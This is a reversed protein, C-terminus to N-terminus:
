SDSEDLSYILMCEESFCTVWQLEGNVTLKATTKVKGIKATVKGAENLLVDNLKLTHKVVTSTMECKESHRIKTAGKYYWTVRQNPENLECTFIVTEGEMCQQDILPNVFKFPPEPFM